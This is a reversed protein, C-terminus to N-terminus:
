IDKTLNQNHIKKETHSILTQGLKSQPIQTYAWIILWAVLVLRICYLCQMFPNWLRQITNDNGIRKKKKKKLPKPEFSCKPATSGTSCPQPAAPKQCSVTTRRHRNTHADTSLNGQMSQNFAEASFRTQGAFVKCRLSGGCLQM